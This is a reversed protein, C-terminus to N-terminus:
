NSCYGFYFSLLFLSDTCAMTKKAYKIVTSAILLLAVASYLKLFCAYEMGLLVALKCLFYFGGEVAHYTVGAKIRNFMNSYYGIDASSTNYAM